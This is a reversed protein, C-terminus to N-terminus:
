QNSAPSFAIADDKGLVVQFQDSLRFRRQRQERVISITFIFEDLFLPDLVDTNAQFVAKGIHIVAIKKGSKLLDLTIGAKADESTTQINSGGIQYPTDFELSRVGPRFEISCNAEAFSAIFEDWPDQVFMDEITGQMRGGEQKFKVFLSAYQFLLKM